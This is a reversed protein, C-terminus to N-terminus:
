DKKKKKGEEEESEGTALTSRQSEAKILFAGRAVYQEDPNLGRKIEVAGGIRSGVTVERRVFRNEGSRVYVIAAGEESLIGSAPVLIGKTKASTEFEVEVPMGIKLERHPNAVDFLVKVTKTSPDVTDAITSLQARFTRDPYATTRVDAPAGLHLSSLSDSFANGQVALTAVEAVTALPQNAAISQGPRYNSATVVGSLPTRIFFRGAGASDKEMWRASQYLASQNEFSLLENEAIELNLRAQQLDKLAIAKVKFLQEARDANIKAQAVRHRAERVRAETSIGQLGADLNEVVALIEGRTVTEGVTVQHARSDSLLRGAVPASVDVIANPRAIIEGVITTRLAYTQVLAREVILNLQQLREKPIEVVVEGTPSRKTEAGAATKKAAASEEQAEQAVAHRVKQIGLVIIVLIAIGLFGWGIMRRLPSNLAAMHKQRVEDWSARVARCSLDKKVCRLWGAESLLRWPM